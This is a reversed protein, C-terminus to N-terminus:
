ISDNAQLIFVNIATIGKRTSVTEFKVRQGPELKRYGDMMIQTYHVPFEEGSDALLTGYGRAREYSKVTGYLM